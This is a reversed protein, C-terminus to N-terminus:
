RVLYTYINNDPIVSMLLVWIHPYTIIKKEPNAHTDHDANYRYGIGALISSKDIMAERHGEKSNKWSIVAGEPTEQGFALNELVRPSGYRYKELVRDAGKGTEPHFHGYWEQDAMEKARLDALFSLAPDLRYPDLNHEARFQNVYFLTEEIVDGM